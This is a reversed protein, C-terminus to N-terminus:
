YVLFCIKIPFARLGNIYPNDHVLMQWRLSLISCNNSDFSRSTVSVLVLAFTNCTRIASPFTCGTKEIWDTWKTLKVARCHAKHEKTCLIASCWKRKRTDKKQKSTDWMKKHFYSATSSKVTVFARAIRSIEAKNGKGCRTDGKYNRASKHLSFQLPQECSPM